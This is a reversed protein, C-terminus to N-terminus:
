AARRQRRRRREKGAEAAEGVGALAHAMARPRGNVAGRLQSATAVAGLTRQALERPTPDRMALSLDLRVPRGAVETLARSGAPTSRGSGTSSSGTPCACACSWATPAM